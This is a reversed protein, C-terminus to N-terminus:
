YNINSRDLKDFVDQRYAPDADYRPDSMAQVVEAQSRFVDATTRPARGTALEGDFGVAKEMEAKLGAVALRILRSNGSDVLSDFAEIDAADLNDSSWQMLNTYGEDGGAENKIINTEAETLDATPATPLNGQMEMYANVLDQSSMSKFEEMVESTLEGKEAYMESANTILQQAPSAEVEETEPEEDRVGEEPEEDTNGLKKQLEIYAKELEEADRFKGALMQEQEKAAAEGIAIAELESENFEPNDAPTPDYTLEPM